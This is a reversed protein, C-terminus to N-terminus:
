RVPNRGQTRADFPAEPFPHRVRAPPLWRTALRGMREWTLRTRQSRRRLARYWHRTAQTRFTAVADINGPVAYYDRHGRVVSGLWRGQEPVPLHMRRRLEDKVERLKARMRKKITIRRVWFAGARTKGCMHTFGLFDFTGPRGLGREARRRAAHRGFEILRTKEAKLGLAFKALRERLDAQFREADDRHEFGMIFDDAFRVVIMDGRANRRRWWDAWLDLAYHLYVNALLPSATAGQPTGEDCEAWTGNELVGAKLWKRILRLVRKDAIRHKLFKELWSHDLRTFFDALDCDLVWNVKKRKIGVTLADLADHQSRGPRFGYSFGLFDAEYICNLVEVVARQAIKDELSAIGLPRQRGDAKPIYVRQSPKARYAGSHLRQHLNQLNPELNEGYAEWTVKDVGAAAKPNIAWYAERLCDIDVHHLLATFKATKDRKAVQRVRDLAHSVRMGARPRSRTKGDANREALGREEVAEAAGAKNPPKMPVVLSYSKGREHMEPKRGQGERLPGGPSRGIPSRPIERNEPAFTRHMGQNKSEAPGAVPERTVGGAINGESTTLRTPVGFDRIDSSVLGAQMQGQGVSGGSDKRVSPCPEPDDHTAPGEVHLEKMKEKAGTTRRM